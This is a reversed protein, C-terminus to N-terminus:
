FNAYDEFDYYKHSYTSSNINFWLDDSYFLDNKIKSNYFISYIIIIIFAFFIFPYLKNFIM